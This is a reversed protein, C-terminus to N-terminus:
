RLSGSSALHRLLVLVVLCNVRVLVSVYRMVEPRLFLPRVQRRGVPVLVVVRRQRVRMLGVFVRRLLMRALCVNVVVCM